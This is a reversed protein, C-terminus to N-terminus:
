GGKACELSIKEVIEFFSDINHFDYINIGTSMILFKIFLNKEYKFNNRKLFEYFIKKVDKKLFINESGVFFKGSFKKVLKFIIEKKLNESGIEIGNQGTSKSIINKKNKLLKDLIMSYLIDSDLYFILLLNNKLLKENKEEIPFSLFDPIEIDYYNLINKEEYFSEIQFKM